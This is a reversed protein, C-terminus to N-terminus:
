KNKLMVDLQNFPISIGNADFVEKIKECAEWKATWYDESKVWFRLGLDISSSAYQNVYVQVPHEELIEGTLDQTDTVIGLHLVAEYTKKKDTLLECLKTARGLCVPLVGVAEPDLTGTHGIKKQKLIGRLRAVVDHSTYGREKYVNIVGNIM